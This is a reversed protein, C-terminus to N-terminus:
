AVQTHTRLIIKETSERDQDSFSTCDPQVPRPTVARPHDAEHQLESSIIHVFVKMNVHISARLVKEFGAKLGCKQNNFTVTEQCFRSIQAYYFVEFNSTM